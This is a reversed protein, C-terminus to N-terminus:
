VSEQPITPLWLVRQNFEKEIAALKQEEDKIDLALTKAQDMMKDANMSQKKLKGVQESIENRQKKLDQIRTIFQRRRQDLDIIKDLDFNDDRRKLAQRILDPSERLLKPNLM